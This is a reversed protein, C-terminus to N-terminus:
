SLLYCIYVRLSLTLNSIVSAMFSACLYIDWSNEPPLSWKWSQNDLFYFLFVHIKVSFIIFLDNCGNYMIYQVTLMTPVSKRKTNCKLSRGRHSGRHGSNVNRTNWQSYIKRILESRWYLETLYNVLLSKNDSSEVHSKSTPCSINIRSWWNGRNGSRDRKGTVQRWKGDRFGIEEM